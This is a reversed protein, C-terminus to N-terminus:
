GETFKRFVSLAEAEDMPIAQPKDLGDLVGQMMADAEDLKEVSIKQAKLNGVVPNIKKRKEM